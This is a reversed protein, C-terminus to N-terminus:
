GGSGVRPRRGARRAWWSDIVEGGFAVLLGGGFAVILMLLQVGIRQEAFFAGNILLIVM